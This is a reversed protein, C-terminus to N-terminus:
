AFSGDCGAADGGVFLVYMYEAERDGKVSVCLCFCHAVLVRCLFLLLGQAIVSQVSACM